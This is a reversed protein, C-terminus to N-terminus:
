KNVNDCKVIQLKHSTTFTKINRTVPGYRLKEAKSCQLFIFNQDYRRRVSILLM